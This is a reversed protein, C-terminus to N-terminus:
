SRLYEGGYGDIGVYGVMAKGVGLRDTGFGLVSTIIASM